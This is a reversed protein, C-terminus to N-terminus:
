SHPGSQDEVLVLVLVPSDGYPSRALVLVVVVREPVSQSRHPCVAELLPLQVLVTELLSRMRQNVKDEQEM